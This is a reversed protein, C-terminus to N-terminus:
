GRTIFEDLNLLASGLVTWAAAEAANVGKLEKALFLLDISAPDWNLLQKQQQYYRVLREKEEPRPARALCLRFAYDLRDALSGQRERLVRTALVQAAEFFVPDNLLNLAQLPTTSRERRSCALLSNPADFTMLQPYPVTRQFFVYLGRRYRDAGSSENWRVGFQYAIGLEVVGPPMPPRVSKGGISTNLLGSVSLAEDRILEAPLRLRAQRALLKNSPDREQLDKRAASSQRYTASTVILKHLRKLDWGSTMFECALWDLLEPQTPREGRTGFDQSTEVLGRGFLEQWFRNVTVRATLPNDESVLWRALRLRAPEATQPLPPLVAPVAAQVVVGPQHYDGRILVHTKLRQPSEGLTQAETLEPYEERLKALQEQLDNFKLEEYREKPLVLSYWQIFHDTLRDQQKQTRQSPDLKLIEEGNDLLKRVTDLTVDYPVDVGPHASAQIVKQEWDPQVEPVHYQALLAKRKKDYTPKGQLFTDLEGPQPAELNVEVATNFCAYLQYFERQSIPDYKHDHCRACGVTLGLWLTGVTSTRDIVQEVRFEERDVGGERNTLTNRHFGTAIKQELTADALLDGAVQEITFRDFQLNRNLAEIVWERWQWAYPRPRDLYYGDSDAYRALDLWQRAWKEGYHPSALLRDVLREYADPRNDALFEDVEQPTPPLGTLDLSVRRILTAPDAEPSPQIQETELRSLVFSDIPNRVWKRNRIKPEKPHHPVLFAWHVKKPNSEAKAITRSAEEPWDAGQDIWARLLIVQEASLREGEPPMVKGKESGAVLQILKSAASNAPEIVAGSNGGALAAQRQDLRLGSLQLDPGHCRYCHQSFLPQIDRRFDVKRTAAPPFTTKEALGGEQAQSNSFFLGFGSLLIAFTERLYILV